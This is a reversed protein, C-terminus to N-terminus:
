LTKRGEEEGGTKVLSEEHEQIQELERGTQTKLGQGIMVLVRAGTNPKPIVTPPEEVSQKSQLVEEGATIGKNFSSQFVSM